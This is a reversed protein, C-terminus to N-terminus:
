RDGPHRGAPVGQRGRPDRHGAPRRHRQRDPHHLDLGPGVGVKVADAGADVLAQAGARTAVNGGVVDILHGVEKQLQAVMDLVRNSHGHATDVMIVDIGADVLHMARKYGDDGVGVAGAVLLRGDHDKTAM